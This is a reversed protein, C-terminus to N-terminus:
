KSTVKSNGNISTPDYGLQRLFDELVVVRATLNRHSRLRRMNEHQTVIELHAPNVCKTNRCTHDVQMGAPIPGVYKEYAYRHAMWRKNGYWFQGYGKGDAAGKGSGRGNGQFYWCGDPDSSKKVQRCWRGEETEHTVIPHLVGHRRQQAWHTNCLGKAAYKQNCGPYTCTKM